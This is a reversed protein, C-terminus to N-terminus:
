RQGAGASRHRLKSLAAHEWELSVVAMGTDTRTLVTLRGSNADPAPFYTVSRLPQRSRALEVPASFGDDNRLYAALVDYAGMRWIGVALAGHQNPIYSGDVAAAMVFQAGALAPHSGDSPEGLFGPLGPQRASYSFKGHRDAGFVAGDDFVIQGMRSALVGAVCPGQLLSVDSLRLRGAQSADIDIGVNALNKQTTILQMGSARGPLDACAAPTAAHVSSSGAALSAGAIVALLSWKLQFHIGPM